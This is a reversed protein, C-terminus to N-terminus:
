YAYKRDFTLRQEKDIDVQKPARLVCHSREPERQRMLKTTLVQNKNVKKGISSMTLSKLSNFTRPKKPPPQLTEQEVACYEGKLVQWVQAYTGEISQPPTLHFKDLLNQFPGPIAVNSCRMADRFPRSFNQRLAKRLSTKRQKIILYNADFEKSGLHKDYKQEYKHLYHQLQMLKYSWVIFIFRMFESQQIQRDCSTDLASMMMFVQHKTLDDHGEVHTLFRVLTSFESPSVSGSNDRDFAQWAQLLTVNHEELRDVMRTLAEQVVLMDNSMGSGPKQNGFAKIFDEITLEGNRHLDIRRFLEDFQHWSLEINLLSLLGGQFKLRSLKTDSPANDHLWRAGNNKLKTFAIFVLRVVDHAVKEDSDFQLKDDVDDGFDSSTEHNRKVKIVEENVCIQGFKWIAQKLIELTEDTNLILPVRLLPMIPTQIQAIIDNMANDFANKEKDQAIIKNITELASSSKQPPRNGTYEFNWNRKDVPIEKKQKEKAKFVLKSREVSNVGMLHLQEEEVGTSPSPPLKIEKKLRNTRPRNKEQLTLIKNFLKRLHLPQQIGLQCSLDDQTLTLLLSGDVSSKEFDPIYQPLEVEHQLWQSVDAVKWLEVQRDNCVWKTASAPTSKKTLKQPALEPENTYPIMPPPALKKPIDKNQAPKALIEDMEGKYPTVKVIPKFETWPQPIAIKQKVPEEVKLVQNDDDEHTDDESDEDESVANSEIIVQDPKVLAEDALTHVRQMCDLYEEWSIMGDNNTDMAKFLADLGGVSQAAHHLVLQCKENEMAHSKLIDISIPISEDGGMLLFAKKLEATGEALKITTDLTKSPAIAPEIIDFQLKVNLMIDPENASTNNLTLCEENFVVGSSLIYKLLPVQTYALKVASFDDQIYLVLQMQPAIKERYNSYQMEKPQHAKWALQADKVRVNSSKVWGSNHLIRCEVYYTKGSTSPIGQASVFGIKLLGQTPKVYILSLDVAESKPIKDYELKYVDRFEKNPAAYVTNMFENGLRVYGCQSSINMITKSNPLNRKHHESQGPVLAVGIDSLEFTIKDTTTSVDNDLTFYACFKGTLAPARSFIYVVGALNIIRGEDSNEGAVMFANADGFVMNELKGRKLRLQIDGGSEKASITDVSPSLKLIVDRLKGDHLVEKPVIWNCTGIGGNGHRKPDANIVEIELAPLTKNDWKELSLEFVQNWVPNSGSDNHPKTEVRHNLFKMILQPDQYDPGDQSIALQRGEVVEISLFSLDPKVVKISQTPLFQIEVKIQASLQNKVYLPYWVSNVHGKKLVFPFIPTDISGFTQVKEEDSANFTDLRLSLYPTEIDGVNVDFLLSENWVSQSYEEMDSIFPKTLRKEIFGNPYNLATQVVPHEVLNSMFACEIVKLHIQGLSLENLSDNFPTTITDTKPIFQFALQVSPSTSVPPGVQYTTLNFWATQCEGPHIVYPALNIFCQALIPVKSTAVQDSIDIIEVKLVSSEKMISTWEIPCQTNENYEPNIISKKEGKTTYTFHANEQIVRIAPSMGSTCSLDKAKILRAHLIGSSGACNIYKTPAEVGIRTDNEPLFRYELRIEGADARHLGKSYIPFWGESWRKPESIDLSSLLAFLSFEADGIMADPIHDEEGSDLVAIKVFGTQVDQVALNFIPSNWQPHRGSNLCVSSIAFSTSNTFYNNPQMQFTIYPDQEGLTDVEELNRGAIARVSFIGKRSLLLNSKAEDDMSRFYEIEKAKKAKEAPIYVLQLRIYAIRVPEKAITSVALRKALILEPNALLSQIAIDDRSIAEKGFASSGNLLEFRIQPCSGLSVSNTTYNDPCTLQQIENYQIKPQNKTAIQFSFMAGEAIREENTNLLSCRLSLKKDMLDNIKPEITDLKIYLYGAESPQASKQVFAQLAQDPFFALELLAQAKLANKDKTKLVIDHYEKFAKKPSQSYTSIPIKIYGIMASRVFFDLRLFDSKAMQTFLTLQEDWVLDDSGNTSQIQVSEEAVSSVCVECIVPEHPPHSLAKAHFLHVELRGPLYNADNTITDLSPTTTRLQRAISHVMKRLQEPAQLSEYIGSIYLFGTNKGERILTVKTSYLKCDNPSPNFSALPIEAVGITNPASEEGLQKIENVSIMLMPPVHLVTPDDSPIFDLKLYQNWEPELAIAELSRTRAQSKSNKDKTYRPKIALRVEPEIDTIKIEKEPILQEGKLVVVHLYGPGFSVSLPVQAIPNLDNLETCPIFSIACTLLCIAHDHQKCEIDFENNGHQQLLSLIPIDFTSITKAKDVHLSATLKFEESKKVHAPLYQIELSSHFILTSNSPDVCETTWESKEDTYLAIQVKEWTIKKSLEKAGLIFIRLFGPTTKFATDQNLIPEGPSTNFQLVARGTVKSNQSVLPVQSTKQFGLLDLLNLHGQVIPKDYLIANRDKISFVVMPCKDKTVAEYTLLCYPVTLKVDKWEIKDGNVKIPSTTSCIYGQQSFIHRRASIEVIFDQSPNFIDGEMTLSISDFLLTGVPSGKWNVHNADEPTYLVTLTVEGTILKEAMLNMNKDLNLPMSLVGPQEPKLSALTDVLRIRTAALFEDHMVLNKDLIVVDLFETSNTDFHEFLHIANHWKPTDHGDKAQPLEASLKGLKLLVYPDAKRDLSLMKRPPIAFGKASHAIIQLSGKYIRNDPISPKNDQVVENNEKQKEETPEGVDLKLTKKDDKNLEPNINANQSSVKPIDISELMFFSLLIEGRSAKSKKKFHVEDYELTYIQEPLSKASKLAELDLEFSTGGIYHDVLIDKDKVHVIIPVKTAEEPVEFDEVADSGWVFENTKVDNLVPYIREEKGIIVTVYPDPFEDFARQLRSKQALNRGGVAQIRILQTKGKSKVNSKTPETTPQAKETPQIVNNQQTNVDQKPEQAIPIENSPIQKPPEQVIPIESKVVESLKNPSEPQKIAVPELKVNKADIRPQSPQKTITDIRPQTPQKTVPNKSPEEKKESSHTEKSKQQQKQDNEIYEFTLTIQGRQKKTKFKEDAYDLDITKSIVKQSKLEALIPGMLLKTGGIHRDMALDKDKVHLQIESLDDKWPFDKVADQGWSFAAPDVDNVVPFVMNISEYHVILYPDPKKDFMGGIGTKKALNSGSVARIRLIQQM